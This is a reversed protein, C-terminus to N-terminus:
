KVNRKRTEDSVEKEKHYLPCYITGIAYMYSHERWGERMNNPHRFCDKKKCGCKKADLCFTIDDSM